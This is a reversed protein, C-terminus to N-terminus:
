GFSVDIRAEVTRIVGEHNNALFGELTHAHAPM